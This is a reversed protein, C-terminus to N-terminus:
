KKNKFFEIQRLRRKAAEESLFRGLLKGKKSRIEYTNKKKVIM